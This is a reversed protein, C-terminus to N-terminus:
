AAVGVDAAMFAFNQAQAKGVRIAVQAQATVGCALVGVGAVTGGGDFGEAFFAPM